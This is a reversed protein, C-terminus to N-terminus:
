IEPFFLRVPALVIFLIVSLLAGFPALLFGVLDFGMQDDM